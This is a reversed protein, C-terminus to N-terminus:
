LFSALLPVAQPGFHIGATSVLMYLNDVLRQMEWQPCCQVIRTLAIARCTMVVLICGVNAGM